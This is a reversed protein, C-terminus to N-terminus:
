PKRAKAGAANEKTKAPSQRDRVNGLEKILKEQEAATTRPKTGPNDQLNPYASPKPVTTQEARAASISSGSLLLAAAALTMRKTKM